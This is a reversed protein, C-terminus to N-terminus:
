ASMCAAAENLMRVSVGLFRVEERLQKLLEFVEIVATISWPWSSKLLM